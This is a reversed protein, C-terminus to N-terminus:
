KKKGKMPRMGRFFRSHGPSYGRMHITPTNSMIPRIIKSRCKSCRSKLRKKGEAVTTIEEFSHDCKTCTYVYMPM